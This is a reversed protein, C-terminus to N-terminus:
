FSVILVGSASCVAWLTGGHTGATQEKQQRHFGAATILSFGRRRDNKRGFDAFKRESLTELNGPYFYAGSHDFNILGNQEM